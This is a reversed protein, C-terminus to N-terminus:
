CYRDIRNLEAAWLAGAKNSDLHHNTPDPHRFYEAVVHTNRDLIKEAIDIFPLARHEAAARLRANYALTLETRQLLTTEVERRANAVDGWDQGDRITPLTAGSIVVTTYGSAMLEDVFEFYAAVSQEVQAEIGEGYKKARYWIVFGCDVEGLQVVPTATAVAPFLAKKFIGVADTLSNPNRLGVATAGGVETFVCPSDVLGIVSARRFAGIHSDGVVHWCQKLPGEPEPGLINNAQM